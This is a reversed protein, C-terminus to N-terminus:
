PPLPVMQSLNTAMSSMYCQVKIVMSLYAVTGYRDGLNAPDRGPVVM